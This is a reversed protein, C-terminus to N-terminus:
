SGPKLFLFCVWLSFFGPGHSCTVEEEWPQKFVRIQRDCDRTGKRSLMLSTQPVALLCLTTPLSFAGTGQLLLHICVTLHWAQFLSKLCPLRNSAARENQTCSPLYLVWAGPQTGARWEKTETTRWGLGGQPWFFLIGKESALHCFCLFFGFGMSFPSDAFVSSMKRGLTTTHVTLVTVRTLGAPSPLGPM